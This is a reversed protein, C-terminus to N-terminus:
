GARVGDLFRTVESRLSESNKALDSAAGLVQGAAAGTSTASEMIGTVNMSVDQTGSAAEQVNRAIEQTAAGQEEVASAIGSSIQRVQDIVTGINRIAEVARRTEDQVASIQSSIEDTARGTQNALNKVEGAM